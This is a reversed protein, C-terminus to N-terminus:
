RESTKNGVPVVLNTCDRSRNPCLTEATQDVVDKRNADVGVTEQKAQDDTKVLHRVTDLGIGAFSMLQHAPDSEGCREDSGIIVLMGPKEAVIIGVKVDDGIWSLIGWGRFSILVM